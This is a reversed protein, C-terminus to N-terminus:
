WRVKGEFVNRVWVGSRSPEAGTARGLEVVPAQAMPLLPCSSGSSARVNPFGLGFIDKESPKKQVSVHWAGLEMTRVLADSGEQPELVEVAPAVLGWCAGPM